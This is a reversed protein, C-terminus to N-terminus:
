VHNNICSIIKDVHKETLNPHTPLSVIENGAKETIPLKTKSKSFSMQHAPKYHIGTEIGLQKMKKIFQSRNKVCIWYFHYSCEESYPMKLSINLESSYRKAVSKRKNNLRDLKKLQVLGISASIENMYFNWGIQEVDYSTGHRNTIGCWRLSKLSNEYKKYNKTNLCIAGGTPMALNKVPHFSFCTADSLSGIMKGNYKTGTAHAADEIIKIEHNKVIKKFHSLDAAYGAFHVPVIAATNKTIKKEADNPDLCFTIPDIDVFVPKGGNQIITSITSVFTLSPVLVERKKIDFLSFALYLASTGNNVAICSKSHTYKKFEKEFKEVHKVGNGSAWFKSKITSTAAKVEDETIHPDFLKIM